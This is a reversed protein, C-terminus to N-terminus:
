TSKLCLRAEADRRRVLGRLVKGGGRVYYNRFGECGQKWNKLNFSRAMRSNCFAKTGANYAFDTSAAFAYIRKEDKFAPVCALVKPAYDQLQRSKLLALCEAPTYERIPRETEGYCVTPRGDGPDPYPKTRLGEFSATLPASILVAAAIIAPTKPPTRPEGTAM